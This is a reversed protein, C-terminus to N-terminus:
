FGAALQRARTAIQDKINGPCPNTLLYTGHQNIKDPWEGFSPTGAGTSRGPDQSIGQFHSGMGPPAWVNLARSGTAADLAMDYAALELYAAVMAAAKSVYDAGATARAAELAIWAPAAPDRWDGATNALVNLRERSRQGIGLVPQARNQFERHVPVDRFEEVFIKFGSTRGSLANDHAHLEIWANALALAKAAYDAGATARSSRLTAIQADTAPM